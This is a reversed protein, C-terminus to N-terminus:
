IEEISRMIYLNSENNDSKYVKSASPPTPIAGNLMVGVLVTAAVGGLRQIISRWVAKEDPTRAREARIALLAFDTDIELIQAAKIAMADSFFDHKNRYKSVASRTIGLIPALAYDSTAGTHAKLADLFEITTNM